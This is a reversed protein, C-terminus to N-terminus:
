VRALAANGLVKDNGPVYPHGRFNVINNFKTKCDTIASKRCGPVLSYTDGVQVAYPMPLALVFAGGSLLYSRVEMRLGNNLGSTWTIVGAGFYDDAESRTSDAFERASTASTISGTVTIPGLSVTCRADGLDAACSPSFLEGVPQQLTQALGRLEATFSTRGASVNGITGARLNMVGQTLDLYNVEFIEVAAGDWRGALLDDETISASDLLGIVDLNPVSLDSKSDITSPTFGTAAQYSIGAILLNVDVSTFGFVQADRRTVKWCWARTTVPEGHHTTLGASRAKM